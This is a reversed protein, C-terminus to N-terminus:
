RVILGVAWPHMNAGSLVEIGGTTGAPVDVPVVLSLTVTDNNNITDSSLAPLMQDLRLDSSDAVRMRIRWPPQPTTSWGTLTFTVMGGPAVRQIQSPEASVDSWSDGPLAPACPPQGSAAARDSYVRPYRFGGEIVPDEGECLDAIEGHLLSWPDTKPPDAYYGDRPPMYPNTVADIVQHAAQLAVIALEGGDDLVVALPVRASGITLMEHYGPVDVLDDGRIVSPPVFLLYLVQNDVATPKIVSGDRAVFDSIQAAIGERTLQAPAPGLSVHQAHSAGVIGYEAGVMRYWSSAVIADGFATADAAAAYDDFTLTVLQMTSLVTGTHPFVIPLRAHPAPQFPGVDPAADAPALRDDGCGCLCVSLATVVRRMAVVCVLESIIEVAM